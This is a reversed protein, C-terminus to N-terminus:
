DQNTRIIGNNIKFIKINKFTKLYDVRHTILIVTIKLKLLNQLISKETVRDIQGTGEDLFLIKPKKVLSRAISIRQAQGGSIKQFNEGIITNEKEPLSNIFKNLNSIKCITDFDNISIKKDFLINKKITSDILEIKQPVLSMKNRLFNKQNETLLDDDIKIKVNENKIFGMMLNILTTKGSGTKGHIVNLKGVDFNLIQRQLIKKNKHYGFSGFSIQITKKPFIKEINKQVMEVKYLNKVKRMKLIDKEIFKFTKIRSKATNYYGYIHSLNPFIKYGFIAFFSITPILNQSEKFFLSLSITVVFLTM